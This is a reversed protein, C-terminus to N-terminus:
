LRPQSDSLMFCLHYFKQLGCAMVEFSFNRCSTSKDTKLHCQSMPHTKLFMTSEDELTLYTWSSSKFIYAGVWSCLITDRFVQIEFLIGCLEREGVCKWVYIIHVRLKSGKIMANRKFLIKCSQGNNRHTLAKKKITCSTSKM